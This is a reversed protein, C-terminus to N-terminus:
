TQIEMISYLSKLMLEYFKQINHDDANIFGANNEFPFFDCSDFETLHGHLFFMVNKLPFNVGAYKAQLFAKEIIGAEISGLRGVFFPKDDAISYAIKRNTSDSDLGSVRFLPKSIISTYRIRNYIKRPISNCNLM